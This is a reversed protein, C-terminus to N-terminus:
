GRAFTEAFLGNKTEMPIVESYLRLQPMRGQTFENACDYITATPAAYFLCCTSRHLENRRLEDLTLRLETLGRRLDVLSRRLVPFHLYSM